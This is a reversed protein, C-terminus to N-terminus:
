KLTHGHRGFNRMARRASHAEIASWRPFYIHFCDGQAFFLLFGLPQRPPILMMFRYINLRPKSQERRFTGMKLPQAHSATERPRYCADAAYLTIDKEPAIMEGIDISACLPEIPLAVRRYKRPAVHPM